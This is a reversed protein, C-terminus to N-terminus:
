KYVHTFISVRQTQHQQQTVDTGDDGSEEECDEDQDGEDIVLRAEDPSSGGTQLAYQAGLLITEETTSRSTTPPEDSISVNTLPSHRYSSISGESLTPQPLTVPMTSDATVTITITEEQAPNDMQDSSTSETSQTVEQSTHVEQEDQAEYAGHQTDVYERVVNGQTPTFPRTFTELNSSDVTVQPLELM